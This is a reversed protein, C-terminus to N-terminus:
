MISEVSVKQTLLDQMLGDRIKHLKNLRQTEVFQKEDIATLISVIEQQQPIDINPIPLTLINKLPLKPQVGGITNKSIEKKGYASTLYYYLFEPTFDSIDVIKSCNETLNAKDLTEGIIAVAGITGVISIILDGADVIYRSIKKHTDDDIYQYGDNLEIVKSHTMDRVRIYPHRTPAVQLEHGKPVRKGGLAKAHDGLKVTNGAEIHEAFLDQIIGDKISQYKEIMKRTVDIVEDTASLVEAIKAQEKTDEPASFKFKYFHEQNLHKITSGTLTNALFIEFDRSRLVYYLYTPVVSKNTARVVFVGSNLTAKEPCNQVIATKGITGDKTVLLDHEHLQIGTDQKFREETVHYCTDWNVKGNLFDTGTVLYPGYDLFEDARLGQWGIRARLSFCDQLVMTKKNSMCIGWSKWSNM